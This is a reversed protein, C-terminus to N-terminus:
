KCNVKGDLCLVLDNITSFNIDNPNYSIFTNPTTDTENQINSSELYNSTVSAPPRTQHSLPKRSLVVVARYNGSGNIQLSGSTACNTSFVPRCDFDIQYFLQSKWYKWYSSPQYNNTPDALLPCNPWYTPMSDPFNSARSILGDGGSATSLRSITANIKDQVNNITSEPPNKALKKARKGAEEGKDATGSSVPSGVIDAYDDLADGAIDLASRTAPTIEDKYADLARQVANLMDIFTQANSDATFVNPRTPIRGFYVFNPSGSPNYYSVYDDQSIRAPWPYNQKPNSAAYEDLCHQAEKAIRWEVPHMISDHDLYIMQDNYTYNGGTHDDRTNLVFNTAPTVVSELYHAHNNENATIRSQGSLAAGPAFVIAVLNSATVNGSLSISGTTESNLIHPPTTQNRFAPSLAYWLREGSGDRLDPIGLSKWPLRGLYDPCATGSFLEAVGDNNTDPCPLSGPLNGDSVARGILAEKALALADATIQNRKNSIATGSLSTIFVTTIGMVLIVLMVLLAGGRQGNRYSDLTCTSMTHAIM